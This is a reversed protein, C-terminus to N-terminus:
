IPSRYSVLAPMCPPSLPPLCAAWASFCLRWRAPFHFLRSVVAYGNSVLWDGMDESRGGGLMECSAVSRGYQDKTKVDCRVAGGGVRRQLAELSRAGCAYEKGDAGKCPQAKEPADVAFLRIKEGNVVLTDGDVVRAPGALVEGARAAPPASTLLLLASLATAAATAAAAGHRRATANM